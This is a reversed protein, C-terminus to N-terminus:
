EIILEGFLNGQSNITKIIAIQDETTLALTNLASLLEQLTPKTGTSVQREYGFGKFSKNSSDSGSGRTAITINRHSFALPAITVDEGCVIVGERERIVVRRNDRDTIASFNLIDSVFAVHSKQYIEPIQVRIHSQDIAKAYEITANTTSTSSTGPSSRSRRSPDDLGRVLSNVGTNIANEVQEAMTFSSHAPEIVLTITNNEVFSTKVDAEMKCGSEIRGNTPIRVNEIIIPGSALAYVVPQDARPGVLPTQILNGGELSKATLSSVTCALKEGAQAGSSPVRATVIVVAVNKAGELEKENLQGQLDASVQGGLLKIMQALGRATPKLGDGTGKLGVVLGVGQLVNEEQGKLRCIDRLRFESQGLVQKSDHNCWLSTFVVALLTIFIRIPNM